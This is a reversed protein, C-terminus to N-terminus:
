KKQEKLKAIYAKLKEDDLDSNSRLQSKEFEDKLVEVYSKADNINKSVISNKAIITVLRSTESLELEGLISTFSYNKSNNYKQLLTEYVKRNSDTQFYESKISDSIIKFDEPKDFIYSLLAEEANKAKSKIIINKPINKLKSKKLNKTRSNM